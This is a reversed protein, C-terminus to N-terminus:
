GSCGSDRKGGTATPIGTMVLKVSFRYRGEPVLEGNAIANATGTGAIAFAGAAAVVVGSLAATVTRRRVIPTRGPLDVSGACVLCRGGGRQRRPVPRGFPTRFRGTILGIKRVINLLLGCRGTARNTEAATVM